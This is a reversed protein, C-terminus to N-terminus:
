PTSSRAPRGAPLRRRSPRPPLHAPHSRGMPMAVEHLQPSEAFRTKILLRREKPHWDAIRAARLNEYPVLDELGRAQIPPVGQASISEPVPLVPPVTAAPEAPWAATSAFLVAAFLSAVKGHM